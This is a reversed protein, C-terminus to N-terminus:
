RNHESTILDWVAYGDIENPMAAIFSDRDGLQLFKRVNTGSVNVTETRRVPEITVNGNVYLDGLYKMLRSPPFNKEADIPDAYIKYLDSSKSENEAGLFAYAQAVPTKPPSYEIIINSPLTPIIHTTWIEAMVSGLIPFEGSRKRDNLSVFLRVIDNESAAIRVLGDHGAHYPKASLCVIGIKKKQNVTSRIMM